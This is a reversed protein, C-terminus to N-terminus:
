PRSRRMDQNPPTIPLALRQGPYAVIRGAGDRFNGTLLAITVYLAHGMDALLFLVGLGPHGLAFAFLWGVSLFVDLLGEAIRGLYFHQVGLFGFVASLAVATGYSKPSRLSADAADPSAQALPPTM